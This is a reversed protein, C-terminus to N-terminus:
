DNKENETAGVSWGACQFSPVLPRSIPQDLRDNIRMFFEPSDACGASFKLRTAPKPIM